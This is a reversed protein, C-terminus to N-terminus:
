KRVGLILYVLPRLIVWWDLIPRIHTYKERKGKIKPAYTKTVGVERVRFGAKIIKYHLYTELEYKDLWEQWVNIKAHDFVSLRFARFGNLADTGRFGTLVFYMCAHVKVMVYRFTPLNDSAGDEYFRSGQVYDAEDEEVPALVKAIQNPDDKDNGALIAVIDYGNNIGYKFGTKIAAGVGRNEPHHIVKYRSEDLLEATQDTSGDNVLLVDYDHELPFKELTRRTKECTNYCVMVALSKGSMDSVTIPTPDGSGISINGWFM